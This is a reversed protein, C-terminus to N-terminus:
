AIRESCISFAKRIADSGAAPSSVIPMGSALYEYMKLTCIYKTYDTMAYPMLCVDFHQSYAALETVTKAGLFHCDLLERLVAVVDRTVQHAPHEKVPGVFVFNWHPRECPDPLYTLGLGVPEKVL